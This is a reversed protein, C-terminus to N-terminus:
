RPEADGGQGLHFPPPACDLYRATPSNIGRVLDVAPTNQEVFDDPHAELHLAIGEREFIPLLTEISRWFQAESEAAREPRGNFESNMVPCELELAIEIARKWYGVAAQREEEDPGSWRYLPLMSVLEVGTQRLASKLEAVRDRDARPHVFFPIFDDRPSLEICRHGLDAATRVMETLSLRRFMYPDPA